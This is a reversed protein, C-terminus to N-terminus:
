SKQPVPFPSPAYENFLKLNVVKKPESEFKISPPGLSFCKKKNKLITERIAMRMALKEKNVKNCEVKAEVTNIFSKGAYPTVKM